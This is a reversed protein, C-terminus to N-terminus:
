FSEFLRVTLPTTVHWWWFWRREVGYRWAFPEWESGGALILMIPQEARAEPSGAIRRLCARDLRSLSGGGNPHSHWDGLYQLERNSEEYLRAIEAIHYEHDPVFRDESHVANPGPGISHTVVPDGSEAGWYGLLVGGTEQPAQLSAQAMLSVVMDRSIWIIQDSM